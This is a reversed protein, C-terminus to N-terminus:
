GLLAPQRKQSATMTTMRTRNTRLQPLICSVRVAVFNISIMFFWRPLSVLELLFAGAECVGCGFVVVIGGAGGPCFPSPEASGESRGAGVAVEPWFGGASVEGLAAVGDPLVAVL